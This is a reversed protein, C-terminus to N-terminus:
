QSGQQGEKRRCSKRLGAGHRSRKHIGIRSLRHDSRDYGHRGSGIRLLFLIEGRSVLARNRNLREGVAIVAQRNRKQSVVREVRGELHRRRFQVETRQTELRAHLDLGDDLLDLRHTRRLLAIRHAVVGSGELNRVIGIDLPKQLLHGADGDGVTRHFGLAFLDLLNKDVALLKEALVNRRGDLRQRGLGHVTHLDVVLERIGGFKRAHIVALAVLREIDNRLGAHALSLESLDIGTVSVIGVRLGFVPVLINRASVDVDERAVAAHRQNSQEVVHVLLVERELINEANRATRSASAAAAHALVHGARLITHGLDVGDTQVIGIGPALAILHRELAAIEEVIGIRRVTRRDLLPVLGRHGDIGKRRRPVGIRLTEVM